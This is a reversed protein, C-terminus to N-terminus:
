SIAASIMVSGGGYKETPVLGEPDYPEKLTKGFDDRGSAPLL